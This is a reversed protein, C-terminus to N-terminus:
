VKTWAGTMKFTASFTMKDELPADVDHATIFGACTYLDTTPEGAFSITIAAVEGWTPLAMDASFHGEVTMEGSDPLDAPIFSRAGTTGMHTTEISELSEGSKSISTIEASADIPKSTHTFTITTGTGVDTAM